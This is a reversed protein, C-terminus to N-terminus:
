QDAFQFVKKLAAFDGKRETWGTELSTFARPYGYPDELRRSAKILIFQYCVGTPGIKEIIDSFESISLVLFYLFERRKQFSWFSKAPGSSLCM